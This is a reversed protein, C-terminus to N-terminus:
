ELTLYEGQEGKKKSVKCKVLSGNALAEKIQDLQRTVTESWTYAVKGDALTIYSIHTANGKYNRDESVFSKISIEEGVKDDLSFDAQIRGSADAFSVTKQKPQTSM